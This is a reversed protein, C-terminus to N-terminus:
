SELAASLIRSMGLQTHPAGTAELRYFYDVSSGDEPIGAIIVAYDIVSLRPVEEEGETLDSKALEELYLNMAAKMEAELLSLNTPVNNADTVTM